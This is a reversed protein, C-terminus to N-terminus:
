EAPHLKESRQGPTGVPGSAPQAQAERVVQYGRRWFYRVPVSWIHVLRSFPFLLFITLGLIIHLQFVWDTGAILVAANPRFTVIRQAWETFLLMTTGDAHALSYPLTVLGLALQVWLIALIAVDMTTSTLRIRPDFLRRHLLMTLGIFCVLGFFGGVIISAMQKTAPSIAWGYAFHPTLLGVLHGFFLVLIGIHFLNSGWFLQRKRLMQSSGSRWSYPERDYRIISGVIMVALAIYPYVGFFFANYANAM